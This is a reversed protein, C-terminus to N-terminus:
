RPFYQYQASSLSSNAMLVARDFCSLTLEVTLLVKVALLEGEILAIVTEGHKV